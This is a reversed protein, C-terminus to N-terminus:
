IKGGSEVARIWDAFKDNWNKEGKKHKERKGIFDIKAGKRKNLDDLLKQKHKPSRVSLVLVPINEFNSNDARLYYELVRWGAEYGMETDADIDLTSLDNVGLLMIDLIIAQVDYKSDNLINAFEHPQSVLEVSFHKRVFYIQEQVTRPDDELWLLTKM